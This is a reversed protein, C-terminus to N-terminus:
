DENEADGQVEVIETRVACPHGPVPPENPVVAVISLVLSHSRSDERVMALGNDAAGLVLWRNGMIESWPALQPDTSHVRLRHRSTIRIQLPRTASGNKSFVVGSIRIGSGVLHGHSVSFPLYGEVLWRQDLKRQQTFRRLRKTAGFTFANLAQRIVPHYLGQDTCAHKPWPPGIEDFFVRGDDPSQYFYVAANCVPCHANPTFYTAGIRYSPHLKPRSSHSSWGEHAGGPRGGSCIWGGDRHIPRTKGDIVRFEIEGGCQDCTPMRIPRFSCGFSSNTCDCQQLWGARLSRNVAAEDREFM